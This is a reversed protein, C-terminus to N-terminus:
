AAELDAIVIKKMQLMAQTVRQAKARDPDSMLRMLASPVIQWSLGFKDKVWGCPQEVGGDSLKAWYHDVEDQTEVGVFFSVAETFKYMPGGNLAMFRQNEIEFTATFVAGPEGTRADTMRNVNDIRANPFVEAYYTLAEELNNDFWLCPTITPM